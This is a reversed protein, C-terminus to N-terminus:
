GNSKYFKLIHTFGECSEIKEEFSANKDSNLYNLRYYGEEFRTEISWDCLNKLRMRIDGFDGSERNLKDKVEISIGDSFSGKHIIKLELFEIKNTAEVIVSQHQYRKSIEQFMKDISYKLWQVDTYFTKQKLGIFKTDFGKKNKEAVEGIVTELHNGEERIEIEKKFTNVVERFTNYRKGNLTKKLHSPIPFDLPSSNPNSKCWEIIEPSSWGLRNRGYGWTKESINENFLFNRIKGHLDSSLNNLQYSIKKYSSEIKEMFDEYSEFNGREWSHTVYKLPNNNDSFKSLLNVLVQPTHYIPYSEKTLKPTAKIKQKEDPSVLRQYRSYLKKYTSDTEGKVMKLFQLKGWMVKEINPVVKKVHGKDGLYDKKFIESAKEYGYTEWYYLWMRLQKVYSRKVNVKKNVTLGTVEQRYDDETLRTKSEKIHFNQSEVIRTLENRFSGNRKYVNHQSSFSLDDAYRTYVCGFRDALGTLKRDLREAIINSITPSTPAGQPLVSKKEKIWKGNKKREVELNIFCLASIRNALELNGNQKNLNFPPHQLRGWFRAQEISPFFDKLDTNFVYHKGVHKRANDVISRNRTFGTAASHPEFVSQLVLNLVEQLAKLGKNPAHITRHGGSKKTIKFEKYCHGSLRPNSYYTLSKLKFDKSKDGYLLFNSRNLLQLLDEKTKLKQFAGRLQIINKESISM